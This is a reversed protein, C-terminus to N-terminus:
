QRQEEENGASRRKKEELREKIEKILIDKGDELGNRYGELYDNINMKKLIEIARSLAFVVSGENIGLIVTNRANIDKHSNEALIELMELMEITENIYREDFIM